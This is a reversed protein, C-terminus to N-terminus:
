SGRKKYARKVRQENIPLFTPEAPVRSTEPQRENSLAMQLCIERLWGNTSLDIAQKQMIEESTMISINRSADAAFIM